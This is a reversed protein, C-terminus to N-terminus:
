SDGPARFVNIKILLQCLDERNKYDPAPHSECLCYDTCVHSDADHRQRKGVGVSGDAAGRLLM